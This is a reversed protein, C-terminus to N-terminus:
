RSGSVSGKPSGLHESIRRRHFPCERSQICPFGAKDSTCGIGLQDASTNPHAIRPHAETRHHRLIIASPSHALITSTLDIVSVSWTPRNEFLSAKRWDLGPAEAPHTLFSVHPNSSKTSSRLMVQRPMRMSRGKWGRPSGEGHLTTM